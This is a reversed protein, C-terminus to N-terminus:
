AHHEGSLTDVIRLVFAAAFGALLTAAIDGADWTGLVFYNALARAPPSSLAGASLADSIQTSLLPHQGVEFFVNVACWSACAGYGWPSSPPLLAATLLAFAFPHAFSPLWQGLAGFVAVTPTIAVSPGQAVSAACRDTVYVLVGALLALLAISALTATRAPVRAGALSVNAIRIASM